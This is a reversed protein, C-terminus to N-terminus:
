TSLMVCARADCTEFYLYSVESEQTPDHATLGDDLRSRDDLLPFSRNSQNREPQFPEKWRLNWLNASFAPNAASKSPVTRRCALDRGAGLLAM